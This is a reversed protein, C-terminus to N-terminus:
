LLLLKEAQRQSGKMQMMNIGKKRKSQLITSRLKNSTNTKIRLWRLGSELSTTNWLYDSDKHLIKMFNSTDERGM